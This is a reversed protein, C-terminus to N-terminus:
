FLWPFGFPDPFGPRELGPEPLKRPRRPAPWPIRKGTSDYPQPPRCEERRVDCGPRLHKYEAGYPPKSHVFDGDWFGDDIYVSRRSETCYIEVWSHLDGEETAATWIRIEFRKPKESSAAAEFAYAWEYCWYGRVTEAWPVYFKYNNLWTNRIAAAIRRAEARAEETTAIDQLAAALGDFAGLQRKVHEGVLEAVEGAVPHWACLVEEATEDPPGAGYHGALTEPWTAPDTYAPLRAASDRGDDRFGASPVLSGECEMVPGLSSQGVFQTEGAAGRPESLANVHVSTLGPYFVSNTSPSASYLPGNRSGWAVGQPDPQWQRLNTTVAPTAASNAELQALVEGSPDPVDTMRRTFM